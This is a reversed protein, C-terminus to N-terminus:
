GTNEKLWARVEDHNGTMMLQLRNPKFFLFLVRIGRSIRFEFVNDRLRRLGLGTHIHPQGFTQVLDKLRQNIEELESDSRHKAWRKWSPGLEVVFATQPETGVAPKKM